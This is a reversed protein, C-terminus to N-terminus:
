SHPRGGAHRVGRGGAHWRPQFVRAASCELAAAIDEDPAAAAAGLHWTRRDIDEDGVLTDALAQHVRRRHSPTASHYVASRVLPHHFSAAPTFTALGAAEISAVGEHWSVGLANAARHLLAPDGFREASALLLLSQAAGAARRAHAFQDQLMRRM